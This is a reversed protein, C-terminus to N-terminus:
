EVPCVVDIATAFGARIPVPWADGDRAWSFSHESCPGEPAALEVEARGPSLNLAGGSGSGTTATETSTALGIGDAYFVDGAPQLLDATVGAVRPTDVGDLNLGEWVLFLLHGLDPDLDVGLRSAHTDMIGTPVAVKNWAYWDWGTNQPFITPVFDPHESTVLVDTDKPLGPIRFTGDEATRVCDVEPLDPTCLEVGELANGVLDSVVGRFCAFDDTDDCTPPEAPECAPLLCFALLSAVTPRM